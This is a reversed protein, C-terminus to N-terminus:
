NGELNLTREGEKTKVRIQGRDIGVVTTDPDVQGGLPVIRQRGDADRIVAAPREGTVTGVVAYGSGPRISMGNGGNPGGPNIPPLSGGLSPPRNDGGSPPSYTRPTSPRATAGSPAAQVPAPTTPSVENPKGTRFPDRPPLSGGLTALIAEKETAEKDEKALTAEQDASYTKTAESAPATPSGKPIFQFAGVALLVGGLALVVTTKQKEKNM